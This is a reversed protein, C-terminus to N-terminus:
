PHSGLLSSNGQSLTEWEGEIEVSTVVDLGCLKGLDAEDITVALSDYFLREEVIAGTAEVSDCVEDSVELVGVILTVKEGSTPSDLRDKVGPQIKTDM